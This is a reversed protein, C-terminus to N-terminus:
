PPNPVKLTRGESIMCDTGLNNALIIGAGFGSNPPSIWAPENAKVVYDLDPLPTWTPEPQLTPTNTPTLTMTPTSTQTPEDLPPAAPTGARDQNIVLFIVVGILALILVGLGILAGLSMKVEPIRKSDIPSEKKPQRNRRPSHRLGPLPHCKQSVHAAFRVTKVEM